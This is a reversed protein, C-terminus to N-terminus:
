CMSSLFHLVQIEMFSTVKSISKSLHIMNWWTLTQLPFDNWSFFLRSTWIYIFAFCNKVALDSHWKQLWILNGCTVKSLCSKIGEGTVERVMRGVVIRERRNESWSALMGCWVLFRHSWSLSGLKVPAFSFLERFGSEFARGNLRLTM